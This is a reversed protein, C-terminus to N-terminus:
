SSSSSCFCVNCLIASSCFLPSLSVKAKKQKSQLKCSTKLGQRRINAQQKQQAEEREQAGSASARESEGELELEIISSWTAVSNPWVCSKHSESAALLFCLLADELSHTRTQPEFQGLGFLSNHILFTGPRGLNQRGGPKSRTPVEERPRRVLAFTLPYYFYNLEDMACSIFHTRVLPCALAPVCYFLAM